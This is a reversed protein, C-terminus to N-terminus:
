WDLQSKLHTSLDMPFAYQKQAMRKECIAYRNGTYYSGKTVCMLRDFTSKFPM